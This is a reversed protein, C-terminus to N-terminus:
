SLDRGGALAYRKVAKSMMEEVITPNCRFMMESVFADEKMSARTATDVVRVTGGIREIGVSAYLRQQPIPTPSLSRPVCHSGIVHTSVEGARLAFKILAAGVQSTRATTTWYSFVSESVSSRLGQPYWRKEPVFKGDVITSVARLSDKKRSELLQEYAKMWDLFQDYMTTSVM